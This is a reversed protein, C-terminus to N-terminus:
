LVYLVTLYFFLLFSQAIGNIVEQSTTKIRVNKHMDISRLTIYAAQNCLNSWDM